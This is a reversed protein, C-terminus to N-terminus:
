LPDGGAQLTIICKAPLVFSNANGTGVSKIFVCNETGEKTRYMEFSEPLDLGKLYILKDISGSNIVIVTHTANTTHEYATVFVNPDDSISEFRVAGPRIYRYFHKSSYYKKGVTSGNMLNFEGIGDTQSGQWWVWASINGYSLGAHIDQALSLAGPKTSSGLWDDLYGSTETMWAPKNMPTSFQERHNRWREALGSGSSPAVGDTYGHVALIDLKAAVTADSKINTHYFYPWNNDAGEMDLMNEAGFVKVSPFTSKIKPVVDKVLDNYWKFTYTCSNFSQTFMLENQLSIAYLDVGADKYLQIGAKLWDAYETYKNPNLTGGNKTSVPGEGRTANQDGPWTFNSQWKLDAPPSWVTFIFKLNVGYKEAKAKLADVVPRQKTWDADQGVTATSPPFYENRWITIGLDRIIKEGWADNWMNAATGWWVDYAGFFGFGDITQYTITKDLTIAVPEGLDIDRYTATVAADRRPMSLTTIADTKNTVLDNDGIWEDFEKGEQATQAAIAVSKGSPYAGSGTGNTVLLNFNETEGDEGGCATAFLIFLIVASVRRYIKM